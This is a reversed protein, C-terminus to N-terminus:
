SLLTEEPPTSPHEDAATAAVGDALLLCSQTPCPPLSLISAFFTMCSCLQKWLDEIPQQELNTATTITGYTITDLNGLLAFTSTNTNTGRTVQSVHPVCNWVSYRDCRIGLLGENL